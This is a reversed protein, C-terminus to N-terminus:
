FDKQFLPDFKETPNVKIIDEFVKAQASENAILEAGFLVSYGNTLYANSM